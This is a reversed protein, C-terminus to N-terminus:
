ISKRFKLIYKSIVTLLVIKFLEALLFPIVGLQFIPKDWGILTGILTILLINPAVPKNKITPSNILEWPDESRAKNLLIDQYKSELSVLTTEDRLAKRSLEKYKIILLCSLVIIFISFFVLTILSFKQKTSKKLFASRIAIIFDDRSSAM